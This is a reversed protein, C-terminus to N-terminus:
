RRKIIKSLVIEKNDNWEDEFIQILNIGKKKCEETKIINEETEDSNKLRNIEIGIKLNPILIDIRRGNLISRDEKTVEETLERVVLTQGKFPIEIGKSRASALVILEDMELNRDELLKLITSGVLGTAGVIAVKTM